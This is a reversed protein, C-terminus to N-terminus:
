CGSSLTTSYNCVGLSWAVNLGVESDPCLPANPHPDGQILECRPTQRVKM